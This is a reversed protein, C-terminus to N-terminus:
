LRILSQRLVHPEYIAVARGGQAGRSPHLVQELDRSRDPTLDTADLLLTEDTDAVQGALIYAITTKGVGSAGSIWFARGGYGRGAIAQARRVAKDQGIVDDWGKPRYQEYLATAM